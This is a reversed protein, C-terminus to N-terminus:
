CYRFVRKFSISLVQTRNNRNEVGYFGGKNQIAESDNAIVYLFANNRPCPVLVFCDPFASYM